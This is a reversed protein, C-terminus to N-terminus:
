GDVRTRYVHFLRRYVYLALGSYLAIWVTGLVAAFVLDRGAPPPVATNSADSGGTRLAAAPLLTLAVPNAGFAVAARLWPEVDHFVGNVPIGINAALCVAFIAFAGMTRRVARNPDPQDLSQSLAFVAWASMAVAGTAATLLVAAWSFVGLVAGFALHCLPVALCPAFNRLLGLLKGAVIDRPTLPSVRVLDLTRGEREAALSTAGAATVALLILLCQMALVGFHYPLYTWEGRSRALVLFVAESALLVAFLGRGAGGRLLAARTERDLVPNELRMPRCTRGTLSAVRAADATGRGERSLRFAVVVVAGTAVLASWALLVYAGDATRAAPDMSSIAAHLPSVISASWADAAAVHEGALYLAAVSAAAALYASVVAVSTRRAFASAVFAPAAVILGTAALTATAAFLQSGRVGGFLLSSAIPPWTAVLLALFAATRASFAGGAISFTSLPTTLLVPLTSGARAHVLVTSFSAPVTVIVLGMGIVVAADFVNVGINAWSKMAYARVVLVLLTAGMAAAVVFRQWQFRPSASYAVFDREFLANM